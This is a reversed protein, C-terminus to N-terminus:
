FDRPSMRRQRQIAPVYVLVKDVAQYIEQLPDRRTVEPMEMHDALVKRWILRTAVSYPLKLVTKCYLYIDRKEEHTARAQLVEWRAGRAENDIGVFDHQYESM